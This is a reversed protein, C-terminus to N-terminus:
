KKGTEIGKIEKEQRIIRALFQPVMSFLLFLPCGKRM